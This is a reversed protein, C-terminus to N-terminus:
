DEYTAECYVDVKPRGEIVMWNVHVVECEAYTVQFYDGVRPVVPSLFREFEEKGVFVRVEVLLFPMVAASLPTIGDM